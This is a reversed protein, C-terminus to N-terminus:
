KCVKEGWNFERGCLPVFLLETRGLKIVDYAHLEAERVLAKGNIYIANKVNQGLVIFYEKTESYYRIVCNADRSITDDGVLTIVNERGRGVTTSFGRIRYDEGVNKGNLAVLWGVIYDTPREREKFVGVPMTMGGVPEDPTYPPVTKQQAAGVDYPPRTKGSDRYSQQGDGSQPSVREPPMTKGFDMETEVRVERVTEPTYLPLTGPGNMDFERETMAETEGQKKIIGACVPCKPYDEQFYRNGCVPCTTIKLEM